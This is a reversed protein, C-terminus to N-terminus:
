NTDKDLYGTLTRVQTNTNKRVEYKTFEKWGKETFNAKTNHAGSKVLALVCDGCSCRRDDM